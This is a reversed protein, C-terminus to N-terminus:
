LDVSIWNLAICVWGWIFIWLPIGVAIELPFRLYWYRLDHRSRLFDILCSVCLVALWCVPPFIWKGVFPQPEARQCHSFFWIGPVTLLVGLGLLVAIYGRDPVARYLLARFAYLCGVLWLLGCLSVTNNTSMVATLAIQGSLAERQIYRLM